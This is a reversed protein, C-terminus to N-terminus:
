HETELVEPVVVDEQRVGMLPDVNLMGNELAFHVAGKLHVLKKNRSRASLPRGKTRKHVNTVTRLWARVKFSVSPARLDGVGAAVAQDLSLKVDNRHLESRGRRKLDALYDEIIGNLPLRGTRELGAALRGMMEKAWKWGAPKVAFSKSKYRGTTSSFVRFKWRKGSHRGAEFRDEGVVGRIGRVQTGEIQPLSPSSETGPPVTETETLPVM